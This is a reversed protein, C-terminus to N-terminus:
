ITSAPHFHRSQVDGNRVLTRWRRWQALSMRSPVTARPEENILMRLSDLVGRAGSAILERRRLAPVLIGTMARLMIWPVIVRPANYYWVLLTNRMRFYCHRASSRGISAVRHHIVPQSCSVIKYGAAYLRLAYDREEGWYVLSKWYGGLKLFTSVRLIHGCGVYMSAEALEKGCRAPLSQSDVKIPLAVAAIAPDSDLAAVVDTLGLNSLPASDDDLSLLYDTSSLAALRNRQAVLGESQEFRLFRHNRLQSLVEDPATQESGDDIVILPCQLLGLNGLQRLTAILDEWRNKTTIAITLREPLPARPAIIM